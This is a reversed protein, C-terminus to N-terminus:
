ATAIGGVATRAPSRLCGKGLGDSGPQSVGSLEDADDVFAASWPLKGPYGFLEQRAPRQTSGGGYVRRAPHDRRDAFLGHYRCKGNNVFAVMGSNFAAALSAVRTSDLSCLEPELCAAPATGPVNDPPCQRM